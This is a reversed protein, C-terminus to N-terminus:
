LYVCVFFYFLQHKFINCKTIIPFFSLRFLSIRFCINLVWYDRIAIVSNVSRNSPDISPWFSISSQDCNYNSPDSRPSYSTKFNLHFFHCFLYYMSLQCWKILDAQSVHQCVNLNFCVGGCRECFIVSLYIM